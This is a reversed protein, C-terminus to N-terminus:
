WSKEVSISFVIYMIWLFSETNIAFSKSAEWVVLRTKRYFGSIREGGRLAYFFPSSAFVLTGINIFTGNINYAITKLKTM